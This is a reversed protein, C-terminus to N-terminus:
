VQRDNKETKRHFPFGGSVIDVEAFKSFYLMNIQV